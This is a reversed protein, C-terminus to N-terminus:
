MEELFQQFNKIIVDIKADTKLHRPSWNVYGFKVGANQATEYDIQGDGVYIVKQPDKAGFHNM